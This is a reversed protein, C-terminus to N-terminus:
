SSVDSKPSTLGSVDPWSAVSTRGNFASSADVLAWGSVDPPSAMKKLKRDPRRKGIHRNLQAVHIKRGMISAIIKLAEDRKFDGQWYHRIREEQDPTPQFQREPGPSKRVPEPIPEV